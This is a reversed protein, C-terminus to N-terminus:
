NVTLGPPTSNCVLSALFNKKNLIEKTFLSSHIEISIELRLVMVQNKTWFRRKTKRGFITRFIIEYGNTSIRLVISKYKIKKRSEKLRSLPANSCHDCWNASRQSRPTRRRFLLLLLSEKQVNCVCVFNYMMKTMMMIEIM